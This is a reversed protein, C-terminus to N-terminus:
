NHGYSQSQQSYPLNESQTEAQPQTFPVQSDAISSAYQSGLLCILLLDPDLLFTKRSNAVALLGIEIRVSEVLLKGTEYNWNGISQSGQSFLQSDPRVPDQSAQSNFSSTSQHRGMKSKTKPPGIRSTPPQNMPIPPWIGGGAAQARGIIFKNLYM